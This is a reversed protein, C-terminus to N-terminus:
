FFFIYIYTYLSDCCCRHCSYCFRSLFPSFLHDSTDNSIIEDNLHVSPGIWRSQARSNLWPMGSSMVASRRHQRKTDDPLGRLINQDALILFLHKLFELHPLSFGLIAWRLYPTDPSTVLDAKAAHSTAPLRYPFSTTVKSFLFLFVVERVACVLQSRLKIHRRQIVM